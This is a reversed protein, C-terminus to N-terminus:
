MYIYICIYIYKCIYIYTFIYIHIYIYSICIYIYIYIYSICIYIYIYIYIYVYIWWEYGGYEYGYKEYLSHLFERRISGMSSIPLKLCYKVAGHISFSSMIGPYEQNISPSLIIQYSKSTDSFHPVGQLHSHWYPCLHYIIPTPPVKNESLGCISSHQFQFQVHILSVLDPNSTGNQDMKDAEVQNRYVIFM